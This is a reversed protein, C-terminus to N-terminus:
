KRLGGTANIKTMFEFLAKIETLRNEISECQFKKNSIVLAQPFKKWDVAGVGKIENNYLKLAKDTMFKELFTQLIDSIVPDLVNGYMQATKKNGFLASIVDVTGSGLKEILPKVDWHEFFKQQAELENTEQARKEIYKRVADASAADLYLSLIEETSEDMFEKYNEEGVFSKYVNLENNPIGIIFEIGNAAGNKYAELVNEPILKGDCTPAVRHAKTKQAAEKLQETSLRQLEDMSKAGTADLLKKAFNGSEESTYYVGDPSGFFIFAKRFLGKAQECAALLNISIAGSEFGMVTINDPDGGFASINEKIWKLAAIQDLLGLNVADPYKEGGPVNSFDIFGLLGLRYNISVGVVNSFKSTIDDNEGYMLPDASGGYSFDGHHFIVIVPRKTKTKKMEFGINLTLCDESQRHYKLISGEHEVQIASAGFHKAEFVDDSDPLPEPAKWRLNGVPPKAYPIGTYLVSKDEKYGVYIGTRTKVALKTDYEGTIQQNQKNFEEVDFSGIIDDYFFGQSGDGYRERIKKILYWRKVMSFAFGLVAPVVIYMYQELLYEELSLGTETMALYQFALFTAFFAVFVLVRNLPKQQVTKSFVIKSSVVDLVGGVALCILGCQWQEFGYIKPLEFGLGYGLAPIIWAIFDDITFIKKM